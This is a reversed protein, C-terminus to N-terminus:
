QAEDKGLLRDIEALRRAETYNGYIAQCLVRYLEIHRELVDRPIETGDLTARAVGASSGAYILLSPVMAMARANQECNPTGAPIRAIVDLPNPGVVVWHGEATEAAHWPGPTPRPPRNIKM